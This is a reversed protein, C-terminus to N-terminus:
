RAKSPKGDGGGQPQTPPRPLHLLASPSAGPHRPSIRVRLAAPRIAFRLPPDLDVAEGDVGAHVPASASVELRPASWARGLPRQIDGPTDLVVIGLQGGDLAPRTGRVLPRDLAYPNNSVLVVTLHHHERGLDDALRLAPTEGSPGMVEAATELLTRVKADRYAPSRVAEGYIGLSVNNLFVRGSVEAMDIQREVAGSFADLAGILDRRDVGVDLAFHNRTGAPVCVFPIEHAAAVAAVVALSGDGGAMGLADAGGTVAERALAALDQGPALIVAEIGKERAREALGARAAKGDGSRPNVFLVPRRSPDAPRWGYRSLQRM